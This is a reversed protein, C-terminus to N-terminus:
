PTIHNAEIIYVTLNTSKTLYQSTFDRGSTDKFFSLASPLYDEYIYLLFREENELSRFAAADEATNDQSLFCIQEPIIWDYYSYVGVTPGYVLWPIKSNEKLASVNKEPNFLYTIGNGGNIIVLEGALICISLVLSTFYWAKQRIDTNQIKLFLEQLILIGGGAMCIMMVTFGGWLYREEQVDPLTFCVFFQYIQAILLSLIMGTLKEREKRILLIFIGGAICGFIILLAFITPFTDGFISAALRDYGWLINQIKDASFLFLSRLATQGKGRNLNWRCYPFLLITTFLSCGFNGAWALVYRFEKTTWFKKNCRFASLLLWLCFLAATVAYFIWFDYHTLLGTVTVFFLFFFGGPQMKRGKMDRLIWIGAVLLLLQVLLLMAYMRLTTIQELILRNTVLTLLTVMGSLLPRNTLYLFIRYGLELIVLYFILNISLGIWISGSGKFFFFSVIRFLWFYLPVHDSYLRISISNLSLSDGDAAFFAEVDKGTMWKDLSSAPWDQEFGNASEFTYIEDCFWPQKKTGWYFFSTLGALLLILNIWLAKQSKRDTGGNQM